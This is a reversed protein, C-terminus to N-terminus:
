TKVLGPMLYFGREDVFALTRRERRAQRRLAPWVDRQGREIAEEDRQMARTIPVQPTWGLAKLLRSVHVKHYRVGFEEQIVRAVRGCTWVEGRFGYAEAGHWLYDPLLRLQTDDPRASCELPQASVPRGFREVGSPFIERGPGTSVILATTQEPLSLKGGQL